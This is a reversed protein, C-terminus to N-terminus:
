KVLVGWSMGCPVTNVGAKRLTEAVWAMLEERPRDQWYELAAAGAIEFLLDIYKQEDL